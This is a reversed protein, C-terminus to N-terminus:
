KSTDQIRLLELYSNVEELKSPDDISDSVIERIRVAIKSNIDFLEQCKDYDMQTQELNNFYQQFENLTNEKINEEDLYVQYDYLKKLNYYKIRSVDLTGLRVKKITSDVVGTQRQIEAASIPSDILKNVTALM